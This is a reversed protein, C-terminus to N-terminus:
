TQILLNSVPLLLIFFLLFFLADRRRRKFAARTLGVLVGLLALACVWATWDSALADHLSPRTYDACFGIGLILPKLYHLVTFQAMTLLFTFPGTSVFYPVGGANAISGLVLYKWELYIFLTGGMALWVMSRQRTLGKWSKKYVVYDTAILAPLFAAANEKSLLA